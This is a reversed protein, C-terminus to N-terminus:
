GTSSLVLEYLDDSSCADHPPPGAIHSTRPVRRRQLQFFARSPCSVGLQRAAKRARCLTLPQSSGDFISVSVGIDM